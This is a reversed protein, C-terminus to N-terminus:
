VQYESYFLIINIHEERYWMTIGSLLHLAVCLLELLVIMLPIHLVFSLSAYVEPFGTFLIVIALILWVHNAEWVPALAKSVTLEEATKGEFIEIIGAGFDAGGLLTYM